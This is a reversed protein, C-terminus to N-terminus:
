DIPALRSQMYPLRNWIYVSHDVAFPWLNTDAMQPWHMAFHLM